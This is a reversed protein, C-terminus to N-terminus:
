NGNNIQYVTYEIMMFVCAIVKWLYWVDGLISRLGRGDAGCVGSLFSELGSGTAVVAVDAGSEGEEDVIVMTAGFFRM